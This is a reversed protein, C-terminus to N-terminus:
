GRGSRRDLARQGDSRLPQRLANALAAYDDLYADLKADGNALHAAAPRRRAAHQQLIFSPRKTPRSSTNAARELAAGARAMADIMLGNWAVIVKDDRGPRVRKERVAFLKAAATPWNPPWSTRRRPESDGCVARADEASQSHQPRRFQRRRDCRVRPWVDRRARRRARSRDRGADVHLVPRRRRRQRRRRHQLLRRGPRDHRPARLRADRPGRPRLERRRHGSVCGLYAGALLANDYLMKEFHPVLWRADVSYRAFGGGLHDYIGGAAMRDLTLRVMDLLGAAPRQSYARAAAAASGDSASVEAGPRLRRVHQDFARRLSISAGRRDLRAILDSPTAAPRQASTRCDRGHAARGGHDGARPSEELRRDGGRSDPRLGAHRAPEHPPWYTGGYFPKLEPTLFVSMPWGGRGTLMQVANMYIQDLDPREERDVKIAVFNENLVRAIAENEFSEHEMVHCWHCASYGISLFIPKEERRAKEIAEEGWPYWDVPNNQHQLLYPSSENALRNPMSFCPAPLKSCLVFLCKGLQTSLVPYEIM